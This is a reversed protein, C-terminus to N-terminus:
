WEIVEDLLENFDTESETYVYVHVKSNIMMTAKADQELEFGEHTPDWERCGSFFQEWYDSAIEKMKTENITEARKANIFRTIDVSAKVPSYKKDGGAVM